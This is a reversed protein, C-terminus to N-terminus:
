DCYHAQFSTNHSCVVNHYKQIPVSSIPYLPKLSHRKPQGHALVKGLDNEQLKQPFVWRAFKALLGYKAFFQRYEKSLQLFNLPTRFHTHKPVIRLHFIVQSFMAIHQSWVVLLHLYRYWRLSKSITCYKSIKIM